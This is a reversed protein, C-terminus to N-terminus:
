LTSVWQVFGFGGGCFSLAERNFVKQYRNQQQGLSFINLGIPTFSKQARILNVSEVLSTVNWWMNWQLPTAISVTARPWDHLHKRKGSRV